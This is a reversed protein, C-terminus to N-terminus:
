FLIMKLIINTILIKQNGVAINLYNATYSDVILDPDNRLSSLLDNSTLFNNNYLNPGNYMNTPQNNNGMFENWKNPDAKLPMPCDNIGIFHGSHPPVIMQEFSHSSPPFPPPPLSFSPFAKEIDIGLSKYNPMLNFQSLDIDPNNEIMEEMEREKKEYEDYEEDILIKPLLGLYKNWNNLAEEM